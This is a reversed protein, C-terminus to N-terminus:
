VVVQLAQAGRVRELLAGLSPCEALDTFSVDKGLGRLAEVIVKALPAESKKYFRLFYEQMDHILLAARAARPTWSVKHATLQATQPLEYAGINPITL